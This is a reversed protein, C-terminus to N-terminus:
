HEGEVTTSAPVQPEAQSLSNLASRLNSEADILFNASVVVSEGEQLGAQIQVLEDGQEAGATQDGHAGVKVERPAFRGEGDAVLVVQRVGSDILASRPVVLMPESGIPASFEVEGFMAPKLRLGPNTLEVRVKLTRTEPNFTPYIFDVKGTFTEGPYSNVKVSVSQGPKILAVDQEYVDALMWLRSLDAIQYLPQGASFRQGQIAGLELVVGDAPAVLGLTRRVESTKVLRKLEAAPIDWVKLRELAAEPLTLRRGGAPAPDLALRSQSDRAILYEQQAAVLEPSYVEMLLEGAKVSQGTTNVRLREIWGDFKTTFSYRRREDVQFQGLARVTRVLQRRAVPVTRVGLTQIKEPNLRVGTGTLEDAYVPIYDMGMEDKKPTPSTDALGMPNRYYLIKREAPKDAEEEDAYVPIYDMGMEDKKPTPSTDALGMPNRYYLIQRETPQGSSVEDAYVPLYDMGMADKKPTPSTDALGMPNRYYLIQREASAATGPMVPQQSAWGWWSLAGGLGAGLLLALWWAGSFLTKM